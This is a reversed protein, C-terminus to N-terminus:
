TEKIEGPAQYHNVDFGEASMNKIVTDMSRHQLVMATQECMTMTEGVRCVQNRRFEEIPQVHTGEFTTKGYHCFKGCKWSRNRMPIQTNKIDEFKQRLMKEIRPIDKKSFCINFPGGDNIYYICLMVNEIKPFLNIVAYYYMMLQPDNQLKKYTKEEGTAWNWRKGTKWDLIMYTDDNVQWIQDMTGKLALFGEIPKGDPGKYEYMAWDKRVEFDFPQEARIIHNNRPDYEGGAYELAKNTWRVCERYDAAAWEHKSYKKYHNYCSEIIADLNYEFINIKGCIDDEVYMEGRQQHLKIEALIEMVKHVITGKEAKKNPPGQWGLNYALFFLCQVCRMNDM